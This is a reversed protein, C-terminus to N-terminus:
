RFGIVTEQAPGALLPRCPDLHQVALGVEGAAAVPNMGLAKRAGHAVEGVIIRHEADIGPFHGQPCAVPQARAPALLDGAREVIRRHANGEAHGVADLREIRATLDDGHAAIAAKGHQHLFEHGRRLVGKGHLDDHEVVGAPSQHVQFHLLRGQRRELLARDELIRIKCHKGLGAARPAVAHGARLRQAVRQRLRQGLRPGHHDIHHHIRSLNGGHRVDVGGLHPFEADAVAPLRRRFRLTEPRPRGCRQRWARTFSAFTFPGDGTVVARGNALLRERLGGDSGLREIAEKVAVSDGFSVSLGTEGDRVVDVAGKELAAVVPAGFFMAELYVIGFGEKGSPLLFALCNQYLSILEADGVKDLFRVRDAVGCRAAVLELFPLDEGQGVVLYQLDEDELMSFAEIVTAIGKYRDGPELRSVSLIFRPPLKRTAAPEVASVWGDALANPFVVLRGPKLGPAQQLIRRRTYNSVCLISEMRALAARRAMGLGSWVEIGHAILMVSGHRRPSVALIASVMAVYNVHGIVVRDFRQTLLIRTVALAFRHRDGCFGSVKLSNAAARTALGDPTDHLSLAVGEVELRACADLITQNFRQIGGNAHIETFLLLVRPM